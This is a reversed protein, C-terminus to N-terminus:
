SESLGTEAFAALLDVASADVSWGGDLETLEEPRVGLKGAQAIMPM